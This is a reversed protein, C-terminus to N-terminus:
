IKMTISAFFDGGHDGTVSLHLSFDKEGATPGPKSNDVYYLEFPYDGGPTGTLTFTTTSISGADLTTKGATTTASTGIKRAVVWTRPDAATPTAPSIVISGTIPGTANRVTFKTPGQGTRQQGQGTEKLITLGLPPTQNFEIAVKPGPSASAPPVGVAAVLVPVSWAVGKVVRRRSFGSEESGIEENL